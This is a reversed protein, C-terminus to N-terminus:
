LLKKSGSKKLMGSLPFSVFFTTGKNEISKFWVTGGVSSIIKNVIYLGLGTGDPDNKRANDARFLKEFINTQQSSPIGIGNDAVSIQVTNNKVGITLIIKGNQNSYKISNSILNLIVISLLKPDVNISSIGSNYKQIIKLKKLNIQSTFEKLCNKALDSIDIMKPDIAFTGLELRSVNLLSNVLNVMRQSAHYVENQYQKQKETLKGVDESLLMESYWNITSLPTRLQHSALSVFETKAKDIQREQSVDHFVVVCGIIENNELVIPAVSDAVPIKFGDKRILSVDNDMNIIKNLRISDSIFSNATKGNSDRVFNIVQNYHQGIAMKISVGTMLEAMKNFLIINGKKDTAFVADGISGLIAEDINKVEEVLKEAEKRSTIDQITGIMTLIKGKRDFTTKGMGLVWLTKGDSKRTIRYEKNFPIRKAIVSQTLYQNMMERDDIHVLDLWGHTNRVFNKDIGFIGDLTESSEWFGKTFDIKYSGIMGAAQSEKFFYESELIKKETIKQKTIDDVMGLFYAFSGNVDFMVSVILNVWLIDGNKKIYKKETWYRDTKGSVMDRLAKIDEAFHDPDTIDSFKKTLLESESYGTMKCFAPNVHIFRANKGTLIIGHQGNEFINRFKEESERLKNTTDKLQFYGKSLLGNEFKLSYNEKKLKEILEKNNNQM